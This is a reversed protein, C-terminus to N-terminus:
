SRYDTNIRIYGETLDCTLIRASGAGTGVSIRVSVEPKEFHDDVRRRDHAIAAGGRVVTVGGIRVSTARPDLPVGAAGAASLIRGWNADGGAVATKVLPSRAVERAVRDASPTDPAGVVTVELMRRAGEGDRVIQRALSGCVSELAKQFRVLSGDTDRVTLGSAGNALLIVTDNTSTDGDVTISEFSRASAAGMAGRLLGPPAAADTFLFVLMTACRPSGAAALRPHIMGAGKACGVITARRGRWTFGVAGMKPLTDTTMIARSAHELGHSDASRLADPIASLILAVPLREGIVGTSAVLVQEVPVSLIRAMELATRRAAEFGRKGTAANACGANALVARALGGSREIHQSSIEVPAARFRNTTFLAAASAPRESLFLALDLEGSKKLGCSRGTAM